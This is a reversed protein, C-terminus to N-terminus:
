DLARLVARTVELSVPVVLDGGLWNLEQGDQERFPAWGRTLLTRGEEAPGVAPLTRQTLSVLFEGRAKFPSTPSKLVHFMPAFRPSRRASARSIHLHKAIAPRAILTRVQHCHSSM